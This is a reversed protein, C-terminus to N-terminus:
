DDLFGGRSESTETYGAFREIHESDRLILELSTYKKGSPNQGMHWASLSCGTIAKTVTEAGYNSVAITILKARDDTLRPKVGRGTSFTSLYHNWINQLTVPSIPQTQQRRKQRQNQDPTEFLRLTNEMTKSFTTVM